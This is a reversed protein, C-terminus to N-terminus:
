TYQLLTTYEHVTSYMYQITSYQATHVSTQETDFRVVVCEGSASRFIQRCQSSEIIAAQVLVDALKADPVVSRLPVKRIVFDFGSAQPAPPEPPPAYLELQLYIGKIFEIGNSQSAFEVISSAGVISCM